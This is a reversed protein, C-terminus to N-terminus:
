VEKTIEDVTFRKSVPASFEDPYMGVGMFCVIEENEPISFYNRIQTIKKSRVLPSNIVCSAIGQSHLTLQLTGAFIGANVIWQNNEVFEFAASNGTVILFNKCDDAFGGTGELHGSLYQVSKKNKVIYVKTPQRNCASPCRNAKDVAEKLTEVDVDEGSFNRLSHRSYLVKDFEKADFNLIDSKAFKEAGGSKDTESFVSILKKYRNEVESDLINREKHWQVYEGIASVAMKVSEHSCDFGCQAYDELRNMLSIVKSVGFGPKIEKLSLGKEISHMFRIIRFQERQQRYVNSTNVKYHKLLSEIERFFYKIDTITM